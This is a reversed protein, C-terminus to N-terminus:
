DNMVVYIGKLNPLLETVKQLKFLFILSISHSSTRKIQNCQEKRIRSSCLRDFICTGASCLGGRDIWEVFVDKLGWNAVQVLKLYCPSLTYAIIRARLIWPKLAISFVFTVSSLSASSFKTEIKNHHERQVKNSYITKSPSPSGDPTSNQLLIM